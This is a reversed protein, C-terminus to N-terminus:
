IRRSDEPNGGQVFCPLTRWWNQCPRPPGTKGYVFRTKVPEFIIYLGPVTKGDSGENEKAEQRLKWCFANWPNMVSHRKLSHQHGMHLDTQVKRLSRRHEVAINKMEEEMNEWTRNIRANYRGVAARRRAILEMRAEKGIEPRHRHRARSNAQSPQANTNFFRTRM